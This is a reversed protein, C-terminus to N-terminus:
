ASGHLTASDVPHAAAHAPISTSPTPEAPHVAANSAAKAANAVAGACAFYWAGCTVCPIVESLINAM